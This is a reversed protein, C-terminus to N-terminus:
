FIAILPHVHNFLINSANVHRGHYSVNVGKLDVLVARQVKSSDSWPTIPPNVQLEPHHSKIHGELEQLVLAKPGTSVKGGSRVLAVHSIWDPVPDQIRLSMIIRPASMKHLSHLLYVLRPRHHVDLGATM